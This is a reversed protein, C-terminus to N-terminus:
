PLVDLPCLNSREVTTRHKGNFEKFKGTAICGKYEKEGLKHEFYYYPCKSCSSPLKKRGTRVVIM